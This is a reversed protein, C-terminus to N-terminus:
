EVHQHKWHPNDNEEREIQDDNIHEFAQLFHCGIRHNEILRAGSFIVPRDSKVGIDHYLAVIGIHEVKGVGSAPPTPSPLLEDIRRSGFIRWVPLVDLPLPLCERM